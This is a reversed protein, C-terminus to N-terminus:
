KRSNFLHTSSGSLGEAAEMISESLTPHPHITGALDCAKLGAKIAVAGEAILEGAGTGAIGIGLIKGTNTDAILKTIGDTRNTAVARGSAAWPFKSVTININKAAADQETLGCWALEPDTYIVSPICPPNYEDSHGAIARVAARAEASAKHALMPNGTVDGIAYINKEHTRRSADVKIFGNGTLHINTNKLGLNDTNPQRGAAVLVQHYTEHHKNGDSDCFTVRLGEPTEEALIVRTGTMIAKFDKKLRRILIDALDKDASPLLRPLTEAISVRSGFAAYASGLELGIYGGGIVLLSEPVHSFDLAGTSDWVRASSPILSLEVPRSGSAIIAQEFSLQWTKGPSTIEATTANIFSAKGQIVTVKRARALQTLGNTLRSTISNKWARLQDMDLSAPSFKLGIKEASATEHIIRAAHLLAKSPICGRNLCVGGLVASDDILTVSFGLDAAYFAATYGGPGAGIILIQTLPM